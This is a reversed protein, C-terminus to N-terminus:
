YRNRKRGGAKDQKECYYSTRIGMKSDSSGAIRM